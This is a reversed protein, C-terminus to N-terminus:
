QNPVPKILAPDLSHDFRGNVICSFRQVSDLFECELASRYLDVASKEASNPPINRAALEIERLKEQVQVTKEISSPRSVTPSASLTAFVIFFALAVVGTIALNIRSFMRM